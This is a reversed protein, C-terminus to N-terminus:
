VSVCVCACVFRPKGFGLLTFSLGAVYYDTTGVLLVSGVFTIGTSLLIGKKAGFRESVPAVDNLLSVV